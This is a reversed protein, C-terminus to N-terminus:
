AALATIFSAARLPRSYCYLVAPFVALLNLIFFLFISMTTNSANNSAPPITSALQPLEHGTAPAVQLVYISYVM